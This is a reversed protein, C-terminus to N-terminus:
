NNGFTMQISKDLMQKCSQIEAELMQLEAQYRTMRADIKREVEELRKQRQELTKLEPSDKELDTGINILDDVSIALQMKASSALQMKSTIDSHRLKYEQLRSLSSAVGM